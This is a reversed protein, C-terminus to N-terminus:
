GFTFFFWLFQFHNWVFSKNQRSNRKQVVSIMTKFKWFTYCVPRFIWHDFLWGTKLDAQTVQSFIEDFLLLMWFFIRSPFFLLSKSHTSWINYIKEPLGSAIKSKAHLNRTFDLLDPWFFTQDPKIEMKKSLNSKEKSSTFMNQNGFFIVILNKKRSISNKRGSKLVYSGLNECLHKNNRSGM